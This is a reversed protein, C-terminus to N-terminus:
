ITLYWLIEKGTSVASAGSLKAQEVEQISDILGGAIIPTDIKECLNNIVKFLIGSMIEIMDPKSAKISAATTDISKSDVAFFRQISFLNYERALRIINVRTSIIGDVGILACFKVGSEDKGIGTALDMHIFIKKDAEHAKKVKKSLTILDPNLDFIVTVNSKLAKQFEEDTRVAAIVTGFEFINLRYVGNLTKYILFTDFGIM